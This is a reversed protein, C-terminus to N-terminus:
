IERLRAVLTTEYASKSAAKELSSLPLPPRPLLSSQELRLVGEPVGQSSCPGDRSGGSGGSSGFEGRRRLTGRMPAQQRWPRSSCPSIADDKDDGLQSAVAKLAEAEAAQAQILAEQATTAAAATYAAGRAAEAATAAREKRFGTGGCLRLRPPRPRYTASLSDMAADSATKADRAPWPPTAPRKRIAEEADPRTSTKTKTDDESSLRARRACSTM